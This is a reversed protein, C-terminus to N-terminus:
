PPRVQSGAAPVSTGARVGYAMGTREHSLSTEKANETWIYYLNM